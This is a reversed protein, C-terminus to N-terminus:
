PEAQEHSPHGTNHNPSPSVTARLALHLQQALAETLTQVARPVARYNDCQQFVLLAHLVEQLSHTDRPHAEAALANAPTSITISACPQAHEVAEKTADCAPSSDLSQTVSISVPSSRWDQALTAQLPHLGGAIQVRLLEKVREATLEEGESALQVVREKQAPTLRVLKRAVDRSVTGALVRTLLPPPLQAIKLREALHVRDFGFAALDDPTLGVKEDLLHRLAEVEYVWAASRQTNEILALLASLPLTSTAYVECKITTLGAIRAALVRRRGAIVAFTADAAHMDHGDKLVVSPSQLIGVQQISKVLRKASRAILDSGPVILREVPVHLTEHAPLSEVGLRRLLTTDASAVDELMEREATLSPLSLISM